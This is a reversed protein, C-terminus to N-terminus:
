AVFGLFQGASVVDSVSLNGCCNDRMHLYVAHYCNGGTCSGFTGRYHRVIVVEENYASDVGVKTITGDAIAFVATGNPTSLDIGRHWDFREGDSKLPRPGFTSRIPEDTFAPGHRHSPCASGNWAHPSFGSSPSSHIRGCLPWFTDARSDFTRLNQELLHAGHCSSLSLQLACVLALFAVTLRQSSWVVDVATNSRRCRLLPIMM